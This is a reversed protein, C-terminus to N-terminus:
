VIHGCLNIIYDDTCNVKDTVLLHFPAGIKESVDELVEPKSLINEYSTIPLSVKERNNELKGHILINTASVPTTHIINGM